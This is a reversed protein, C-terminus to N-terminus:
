EGATWVHDVREASGSMLERAYDRWLVQVLSM